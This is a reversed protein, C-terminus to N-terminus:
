RGTRDRIRECKRCSRNGKILRINEATYEHGRKCHTRYKKPVPQFKWTELATAIQRRRKSMMLSYLTMMLGAARAGSVQWRYIDNWNPYKHNRAELTINGGVLSQLKELPFKQVQSACVIIYNNEGALFSGDGELFGAVWHLERISIAM